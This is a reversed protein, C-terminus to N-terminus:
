EHVGKAQPMTRLTEVGRPFSEGPAPHNYIRETIVYRATIAAQVGETELRSGGLSRYTAAYDQEAGFRDGGFMLTGNMDLLVAGFRSLIDSTAVRSPPLSRPSCPHACPLWPAGGHRVHAAM